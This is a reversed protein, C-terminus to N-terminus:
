KGFFLTMLHPVFLVGGVVIALIAALLVGAAAVDKARGALYRREPSLLDVLAELATNLVEAVLVLGITLLLVAWEWLALGLLAALLVTLATFLLHIRVNRQTWLVNALGRFAARFAGLLSFRGEFSALLREQRAEMRRREAETSDDYGLLHLLGHVLLLASERAWDHGYAEAQQRARQLSIAIDGLYPQGEDPVVFAPQEATEEQLGFALVDTPEDRGLYQRNLAQIGADDTLVVGVECPPAGEAALVWRALRRLRKLDPVDGSGGEVNIEVRYPM